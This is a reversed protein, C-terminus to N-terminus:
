KLHFHLVLYQFSSSLGDKYYLPLSKTSNHRYRLVRHFNSSLLLSSSCKISFFQQASFHEPHQMAERLQKYYLALLCFCNSSPFIYIFDLVLVFQLSKAVKLSGMFFYLTMNLLSFLPYTWSIMQYYEYPYLSALLYEDLCHYFSESPIESIQAAVDMMPGSCWLRSTM